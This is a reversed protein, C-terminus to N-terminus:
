FVDEMTGVSKMEYLDIGAKVLIKPINAANIRDLLGVKLEDGKLEVSTIWKQAQLLGYANKPDSVEILYIPILVKRKLDNASGIATIVGKSIFAFRDVIYESEIINHSTFFICRGEALWDKFYNRLKRRLEIDIMSFPEDLFLIQANSLLVRAIEVRQTQGSSMFRIKKYLNNQMEVISVVESIKKSISNSSIGAMKAYFKLYKEFTMNEYLFPVDLLISVYKRLKNPYLLVNIGCVTVNGYNPGTLGTLVRICTTKGAGNPGFIGFIEGAEVDISVKNLALINGYIKTLNETHILM